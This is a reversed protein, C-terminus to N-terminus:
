SPYNEKINAKLVQTQVSLNHVLTASSPDLIPSLSNYKLFNIGLIVLLSLNKLIVASGSLTVSMNTFRISVEIQGETRM